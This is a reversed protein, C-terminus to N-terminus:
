QAFELVRLSFEAGHYQTSGSPDTMADVILTELQMDVSGSPTGNGFIAELISAVMEITGAYNALINGTGFPAFLLRYKLSYSFDMPAVDGGFAVREFTVNSVYGDPAPFFIPCLKTADEPIKDIDMFRVGSVSVRSIADAVTEIQVNITV